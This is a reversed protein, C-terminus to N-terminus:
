GKVSNRFCEDSSRHKRAELGASSAFISPSGISVETDLLYLRREKFTLVSEVAYNTRAQKM